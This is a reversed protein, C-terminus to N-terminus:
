PIFLSCSTSGTQRNISIECGIDTADDYPVDAQRLMWAEGVSHVSEWDCDFGTAQAAAEAMAEAEDQSDVPLDVGEPMRVCLESGSYSVYFYKDPCTGNRPKPVGGDGNGCGAALLGAALALTMWSKM